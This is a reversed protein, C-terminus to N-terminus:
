ASSDGFAELVTQVSMPSASGTIIDEINGLNSLLKPGAQITENANEVVIEANKWYAILAERVSLPNIRLRESLIRQLDISPRPHSFALLVALLARRPDHEGPAAPYELPNFWGRSWAFTQTGSVVYDLGKDNTWKQLRDPEGKDDTWGKADIESSWQKEERSEGFLGGSLKNSIVM